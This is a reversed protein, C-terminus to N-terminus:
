TDGTDHAEKRGINLKSRGETRSEPDPVLCVSLCVSPCVVPMMASHGVRHPPPFLIIQLTGSHRSCYCCIYMVNDHTFTLFLPLRADTGTPTPLSLGGELECGRM